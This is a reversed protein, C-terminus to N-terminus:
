SLAKEKLESYLDAYDHFIPKEKLNHRVQAARYKKHYRHLMKKQSEAKLNPNKKRIVEYLESWAYKTSITEWGIDKVVRDITFEEKKNKHYDIEDSFSSTQIHQFNTKSSAFLSNSIFDNYTTVLDDYKDIIDSLNDSWLCDRIKAARKLRWEIRFSNGPYNELDIGHNSMERNKDYCILSHNTNYWTISTDRPFRNMKPVDILKLVEMYKIPPYQTLINKFLEIESVRLDSVDLELGIANLKSLLQEIVETFQFKTLPYYNTEKHFVKPASLTIFLHQNLLKCFYQRLEFTISSSRLHPMDEANIQQKYNNPSAIRLFQNSSDTCHEFYPFFLKIKDIM